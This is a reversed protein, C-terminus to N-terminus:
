TASANTQTRFFAPSCQRRSGSSIIPGTGRSDGRCGEQRAPPISPLSISHSVIPPAKLSWPIASPISRLPLRSSYATSYRAPVPDVVVSQFHPFRLVQNAVANTVWFKESNRNVVVGYPQSLRPISFLVPPNDGASPVNPLIAIRNFGTDAVYLQDDPDIAILHPGSFVAPSSSVFDPQGFVNDARAGAAQFDGGRPKRFFLIRNAAPDSVVLSGDATFAVGYSSKM